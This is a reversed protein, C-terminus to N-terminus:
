KGALANVLSSSIRFIKNIRYWQLFACDVLFHEYVSKKESVSVNVDVPISIAAVTL